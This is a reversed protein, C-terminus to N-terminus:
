NAKIIRPNMSFIYDDIPSPSIGWVNAISAPIPQNFQSISKGNKDYLQVYTNCGQTTDSRNVNFAYWNLSRATDGQATVVIPIIEISGKVMVISDSLAVSLVKTQAKANFSIFSLAIILIKKM